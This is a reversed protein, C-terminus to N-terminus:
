PTNLDVEGSRGECPINLRDFIKMIIEKDVPPEWQMCYVMLPWQPAKWDIRVSLAPCDRKRCVTNIQELTLPKM